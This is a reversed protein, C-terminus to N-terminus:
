QKGIVFFQRTIKTENGARDRARITLTHEGPTLARMPRASLVSHDVDYEAILWVGDIRIEMDDDEGTGSLDDRVLATVKPKKNEIEVGPRISTREVTPPLTDELLAYTSLYRVRGTVTGELTDLDKGAYSWSDKGTLEYLGLKLPDCGEAPYAISIKAWGKLPVTSPEFSYAKSVPRRSGEPRRDVDNITVNIDGYVGNPEMELGAKGDSSKATGGHSRTVIAVPITEKLTVTDGSLTVAKGLLIMENQYELYFPFTARYQRPDTQECFLPDFDFGGSKLLLQPMTILVQNFEIDFVFTNERFEHQFDWDLSNPPVSDAPQDANIALYCEDSSAGFGDKLKVGLLAPENWGDELSIVQEGQRTNITERKAEQWVKGEWACKEVIIQKVTDDPDEFVLQIEQKGAHNSLSCSLIEPARDFILSLKATSVNGSADYAKITVKHVEPEVSRATLRGGAPRYLPLENGNEVYLKYFNKGQTRRLQFDRDLEVQQTTEFSLRDYRSAFLLSDDLCLEFGLVGFKFGSDDMRDYASIELGVEGEVMPAHDPTYTNSRRNLSLSLIETQNSGDARSALDLPRLAVQQMVPPIRDAVSLGSTLPNLPRNESDRLEFHLHPGGWGTDGSYGIIEGKEVRFENEHLFLDTHYRQNRVQEAAVLEAIKWPFRSLHGYVAFQGNDLKLYVAKGYGKWSAYVRYVYGSGCAMVEYGTTGQTPIDIGAHFRFHRYDAFISSLSRLKPIPWQYDSGRTETGCLHAPLSIVFATGFAVVLRATHTM